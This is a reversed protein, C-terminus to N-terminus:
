VIKKLEVNVFGGGVVDVFADQMAKIIIPSQTKIDDTEIVMEDHKLILIKSKRAASVVYKAATKIIMAGLGQIHYSVLKKSINKKYTKIEEVIGREKTMLDRFESRDRRETFYDNEKLKEVLPIYKSNIPYIDAYLNSDTTGVTCHHKSGIYFRGTKSLYELLSQNVNKLNLITTLDEHMKKFGSWENSNIYKLEDPSAGYLIALITKKFMSRKGYDKEKMLDTDYDIKGIIENYMFSYIDKKGSSIFDAYIKPKYVAMFIMLEFAVYDFSFLHDSGIINNSIGQINPDFTIIRGTVAGWQDHNITLNKKAYQKKQLYKGRESEANIHKNLVEDNFSKLREHTFNFKGSHLDYFNYRKNTCYLVLEDKSMIHESFGTDVVSNIFDDKVTIVSQNIFAITGSMSCEWMIQKDMGKSKLYSRQKSFIKIMAELLGKNNKHEYAKHLYKQHLNKINKNGNFRIIKEIICINLQINSIVFNQDYTIIFDNKDIGIEKLEKFESYVKSDSDYHCFIGNDYYIARTM